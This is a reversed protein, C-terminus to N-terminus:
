ISFTFPDSSTGSGGSIEVNSNLYLTPRLAYSGTTLNNNTYLGDLSQHQIYQMYQLNRAHMSWESLNILDYFYWTVNEINGIFRYQPKGFDNDFNVYSWYSPSAAFLHDSPQPLGINYSQVTKTATEDIHILKPTEIVSIIDGVNFQSKMIMDKASLSLTNYYTNNLYINADADDASSNVNEGEWRADGSADYIFRDGTALGTFVGDGNIDIPKDKTLKIIGDFIGIIRWMEDNFTVYNKVISNSGSYRYNNDEASNALDVTHHYLGESEGHNKVLYNAATPYYLTFPDSETGTGEIIEVSSKLYLVPRSAYGNNAYISSVYGSYKVNWVGSSHASYASISWENVGSYMWNSASISNTDYEFLDTTWANSTAAYGYDSLYMLGINAQTTIHTGPSTSNGREENYFANATQNNTDPAGLYWTSTEVMARSTVDLGTSTFDCSGRGSGGCDALLNPAVTSNFYYNNLLQNLEAGGDDDAWSNDGYPNEADGPDFEYTGISTEKIIKINGDFVGIIRWMEDNFTVYNDPNAGSYRYNNDGAGNELDATHQYLGDEEAHVTTIFDSAPVASLVSEHQMIIEANLTKEANINQSTALNLIYIEIEWDHTIGTDSNDTTIPYDAVLKIDGSFTTIDFGTVGSETVRDLGTISTIEVGEPNTITMVIEPTETAGTSYVFPNVLIRLFLNYSSTATEDDRAILTASPNTVGRINGAGDGLSVQNMNLSVGNGSDFTLIDVGKGYISTSTTAGAGAGVLYYAYTIGFVLVSLLLTGTLIIFLKKHKLIKDRIM